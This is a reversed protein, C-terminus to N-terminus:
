RPRARTGAEAEADEEEEDDCFHEAGRKHALALDRDGEEDAESDTLGRKWVREWVREACLCTCVRLYLCAFLSLSPCLPSVSLCRRLHLCLRLGGAHTSRSGAAELASLRMGDQRM